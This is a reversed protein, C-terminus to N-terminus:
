FTRSCRLTEEGFASELMEHTKSAMMGLKVFFKM